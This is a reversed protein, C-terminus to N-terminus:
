RGRRRSRVDAGAPEGDGLGGGAGVDPEVCTRAARDVPPLAYGLAALWAAALLLGGATDAARRGGHDLGPLATLATAVVAAAVALWRWWSRTGAVALLALAGFGTAVTAVRTDPFSSHRAQHLALVAGLEGLVAVGLFAAGRRRSAILAVLVAVVALIALPNGLRTPPEGTAVLAGLLFVAGIVLVWLVALIAPGRGVRPQGTAERRWLRFAYGTLGLWAAALLWAGIVDSVYHVGLAIRTFGIAGVLAVTVGILPPRFRRPVLPLGVLLLAGYGAASGLAHGSPFSNGSATAVPDAVVPRLRGVLLKLTRELVVAGLGTAALYAALQPQRRISLTVVGAALLLTIVLPSGVDTVARLTHVVPPHEAVLRNLTAATGRDFHDLPPWRARVLALLLGFGAGAALVAVLGALSRATFRAAPQPQSV